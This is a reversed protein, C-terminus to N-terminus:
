SWSGMREEISWIYDEAWRVAADLDGRVGPPVVNTEKRTTGDKSCRDVHVFDHACDVREVDIWAEDTDAPRVQLMIAFEVLEGTQEIRVYRQVVQGEWTDGLWVSSVVTETWTAPEPTAKPEPAGSIRPLRREARKGSKPNVM